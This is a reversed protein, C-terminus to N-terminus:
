VELRAAGYRRYLEVVSPADVLEKVRDLMSDRAWAAIFCALWSGWVASCAFVTPVPCSASAGCGTPEWPEPVCDVEGLVGRAARSATTEPRPPCWRARAAVPPM